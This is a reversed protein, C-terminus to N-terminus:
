KINKICLEIIASFYAFWQIRKLKLDSVDKTLWNTTKANDIRDKIGVNLGGVMVENTVM